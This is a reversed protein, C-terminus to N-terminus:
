AVGTDVPRGPVGPAPLYLIHAVQLRGPLESLRTEHGWVGTGSWAAMEHALDQAERPGVPLGCPLPADAAGRQQQEQQGHRLDSQRDPAIVPVARQEVCQLLARHGAHQDLDAHKRQDEHDRDADRCGVQEDFAPQLQVPAVPEGLQQDSAPHRVAPVVAQQEAGALVVVGVLANGLVDADRGFAPDRQGM